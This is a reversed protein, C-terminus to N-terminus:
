DEVEHAPNGRARDLLGEDGRRVVAVREQVLLLPIRARNVILGTERLAGPVDRIIASSRLSCIHLPRTPNETTM